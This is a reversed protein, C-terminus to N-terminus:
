NSFLECVCTGTSNDIVSIYCYLISHFLFRLWLNVFNLLFSAHDFLLCPFGVLRALYDDFNVFRDSDM